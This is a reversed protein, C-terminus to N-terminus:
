QFLSKAGEFELIKEASAFAGGGFIRLVARPPPTLQAYCKPPGRRRLHDPFEFVGTKIIKWFILKKVNKIVHLKSQFKFYASSFILWILKKFAGASKEHFKLRSVLDQLLILKGTHRAYKLIRGMKLALESLVLIWGSAGWSNEFVSLAECWSSQFFLTSRVEEPKLRWSSAELGKRTSM